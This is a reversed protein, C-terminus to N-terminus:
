FQVRPRTVRVGYGGLEVALASSKRADVKLQQAGAVPQRQHLPAEDGALVYTVAILLETGTCRRRGTATGRGAVALM